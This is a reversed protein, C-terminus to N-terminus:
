LKSNKLILENLKFKEFIQCANRYLDILEDAISEIASSISVPKNKGYFNRQAINRALSSEKNFDLYEPQQMMKLFFKPFNRLFPYSVNDGTRSGVVMDFENIENILDLIQEAPYTGDADFILILNNKAHFIGSKLAAGYGLNSEHTIVSLNKYNQSNNKLVQDTDDTSGDNIALIEYNQIDQLNYQIENLTNIIGEQEDYCPIVITFDPFSRTKM